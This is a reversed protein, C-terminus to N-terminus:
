IAAGNFGAINRVTKASLPMEAIKLDRGWQLAAKAPPKPKISDMEAIKLGRGWQLMREDKM